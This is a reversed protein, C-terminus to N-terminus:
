FVGGTLYLSTIPWQPNGMYKITSINAAADIGFDSGIYCSQASSSYVTSSDSDFANNTNSTSDGFGTGQIIDTKTLDFKAATQSTILPPISVTLSNQTASVAPAKM